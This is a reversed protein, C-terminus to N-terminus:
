WAAMCGPAPSSPVWRVDSGSAAPKRQFWNLHTSGSDSSRGTRPMAAEGQRRRARGGGIVRADWRQAVLSVGEKVATSREVTRRPSRPDGLRALM